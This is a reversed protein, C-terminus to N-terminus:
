YAEGAMLYVGMSDPTFGLDLRATLRDKPELVFRLGAGASFKLGSTSFDTVEKMVEGTAAHITIIFLESLHFHYEAQLAIMNKDRFRGKFYGRLMKDGGIFPMFFFPVDGGSLAAYAHVSGSQGEFAPFFWRFDAEFKNFINQSGIGPGFSLFSVQHLAGDTAYYVYDRTDWKLLLGAGSQRLGRRGPAQALLGSPEVELLANNQFVYRLGAYFGPVIKKYSEAMFYEYEITYKESDGPLTYNGTGFFSDPYKKYQLIGKFIYENGKLYHNIELYDDTQNKESYVLSVQIISPTTDKDEPETRYLYASNINLAWGTEPSYLPIPVIVFFNSDATGNKTSSVADTESAFVFCTFALFSLVLSILKM